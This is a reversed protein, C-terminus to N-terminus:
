FNVRFFCFGCFVCFIKPQTIEPQSIHANGFREDEITDVEVDLSVGLFGKRTEREERIQRKTKSLNELRFLMLELAIEGLSDSM